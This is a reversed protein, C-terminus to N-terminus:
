EDSDTNGATYLVLGIFFFLFVLLHLYQILKVDLLILNYLDTFCDFQVSVSGIRKWISVRYRIIWLNMLTHVYPYIVGSYEPYIVCYCSTEIWDRLLKCMYTAKRIEWLTFYLCLGLFICNHCIEDRHNWRLHAHLNQWVNLIGLSELFLPFTHRRAFYRWIM